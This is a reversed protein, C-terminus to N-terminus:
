NRDHLVALRSAAGINCSGEDAEVKEVADFHEEAVMEHMYKEIMRHNVGIVKAWADEFEQVWLDPDRGQLLAIMKPLRLRATAKLRVEMDVDAGGIKERMSVPTAAPLKPRM